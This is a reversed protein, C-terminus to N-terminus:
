GQLTRQGEYQVEAPLGVPNPASSSVLFLSRGRRPEDLDPMQDLLPMEPEVATQLSTREALRSQHHRYIRRPINKKTIQYSLGFM